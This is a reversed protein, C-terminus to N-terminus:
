RRRQVAVLVALVICLVPLIVLPVWTLVFKEGPSLFLFVNNVKSKSISLLNDKERLWNLANRVLDKNGGLNIYRDTLFDDDGFVLVRSKNKKNKLTKEAWFGFVLPGKKDTKQDFQAEGKKLDKIDTELWSGASTKLLAGMQWNTTKQPLDFALATPFVTIFNFDRTIPHYPYSEAIAAMFSGVVLKGVSDIIFGKLVKVGLLKEVFSSINSTTEPGFAILLRGGRNVYNQLLTLEASLFDKQPGLILVSLADQPIRKQGLLSIEKSKIGQDALLKSLNSISRTGAITEEGHGKVIYVFGKEENCLRLIANTIKEEDPFLVKEKKKGKILVVEGSQFIEYEKALNPARDPDIFEYSFHKNERAYLKLLDELQEKGNDGPRYFCLVTIKSHLSKLVKQTEKSLSYRKNATLDWQWGARKILINVGVLLALGLVVTIFLNLKRM